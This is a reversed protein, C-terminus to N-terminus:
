GSINDHTGDTGDTITFGAQASLDAFSQPVKIGNDFLWENIDTYGAAKALVHRQLASVASIVPSPAGFSTVTAQYAAYFPNLLQLEPDFSQITLIDYAADYFHQDVNDLQDMGAGYAHAVQSYVIPDIVAM